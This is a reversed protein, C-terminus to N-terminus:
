KEHYPGGIEITTEGSPNEYVKFLENGEYYIYLRLVTNELGFGMKESSLEPDFVQKTSEKFAELQGKLKDLKEESFTVGNNSISAHWSDAEKWTKVKIKWTPPVNVFGHQFCNEVIPQLILKPVELNQITKDLEWTYELMHEYRIKMIYLYSQINEIEDILLVNKNTYSISYRLLASLEACMKPITRNGSEMGCAGIVSLTNYLFHPNLQAEMAEFHAQMTRKKANVLIKDQLRLKNLIEGIAITLITIENNGMDEPLAINEDAELLSLNDKLTRLPKTLNKIMIYLFLLLLCLALFYSFIIIMSFRTINTTLPKIDREMVLIWGTLPSRSYCLLTQSDLYYVGKENSTIMTLLENDKTYTSSTYGSEYYTIGQADLLSLHTVDTIAADGLIKDLSSADKEYELVGYTRFTDRIPRLVSYVYKPSASFTSIHPPSFFQYESTELGEKVQPLQLISEKPLINTKNSSNSVQFFDYYQSIYTLTSSREKPTLYSILISHVLNSEMPHRSFYNPTDESISFVLETFEYSAHVAKLTQAMSDLDDDFQSQISSLSDLSSTEINSKLLTTNYHMFIYGCSFLVLFIIISFCIFLKKQFDLNKLM